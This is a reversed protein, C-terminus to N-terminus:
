RPMQSGMVALRDAQINGPHTSHGKVWQFRTKAGRKTREDIKALIAEVLDRNKVPGSKTNWNNKIWNKYWVTVCNISYQSDTVIQVDQKPASIQLARL